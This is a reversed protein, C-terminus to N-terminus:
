RLKPKYKSKIENYWKITAEDDEPINDAVHIHEIWKDEENWAFQSCNHRDVPYLEYKSWEKFPINSKKLWDRVYKLAWLWAYREPVKPSQLMDVFYTQPENNSDNDFYVLVFPYRRKSNRKM